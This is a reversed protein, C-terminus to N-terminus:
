GARCCTPFPHCECCMRPRRWAEGDEAALRSVAGRTRAAEGDEDDAGQCGGPLLWRWIRGQRAARRTFPWRSRSVLWHAAPLREPRQRGLHEGAGGGPLHWGGAGRHLGAPGAHAARQRREGGAARGKPMWSRSGPTSCRGGWGCGRWRRRLASGRPPRSPFTISKRTGSRRRQGHQEDAGAPRAAGHPEGPEGGCKPVAGRLAAAVRLHGDGDLGAPRARGARLGGGCAAQAKVKGGDMPQVSAVEIGPSTSCSARACGGPARRFAHGGYGGRAARWASRDGLHPSARGARGGRWRSRWRHRLWARGWRVCDVGARSARGRVIDIPRNGPSM